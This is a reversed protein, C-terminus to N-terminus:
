TLILLFVFFLPHFVRKKPTHQTLSKQQQAIVDRIRRNAAGCGVDDVSVDRKKRASIVAAHSNVDDEHYVISRRQPATSDYRKAPEVYYTGFKRSGIRGVFTGEIITGLVNSDHPEDELVGTYMILDPTVKKGGIEIENTTDANPWLKM